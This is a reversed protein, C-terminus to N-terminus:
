RRLDERKISKQEEIEEETEWAEDDKNSANIGTGGRKFGRKEEM